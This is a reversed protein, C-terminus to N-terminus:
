LPQQQSTNPLARSLGINSILIVSQDASMQRVFDSDNDDSDVKKTQEQDNELSALKLILKEFSLPNNIHTEFAQPDFM